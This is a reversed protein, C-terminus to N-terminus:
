VHYVTCVSHLATNDYCCQTTEAEEVIDGRVEREEREDGRREIGRLKEAKRNEVIEERGDKM